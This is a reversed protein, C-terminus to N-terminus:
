VQKVKAALKYSYVVPAINSSGKVIKIKVLINKVQQPVTYEVNNISTKPYNMYQVGPLKFGTAINQNFAFIEPVSINTSSNTTFGYQVPAIEIWKQGNDISIYGQIYGGSEAIENYNSEIDLMVSEVPSDFVYPKSIIDASLEYEQYAISIDRIGIAMRKAPLVEKATKIPVNFTEELLGASDPENSNKIIVSINKSLVNDRKFINPNTLNPVLASKDYIVQTYLEKNVAEPNFRNVGYFPSNDANSAEYNTQWYTHLIEVNQYYPQELVVRCEKLIRESFFFTAANLSYNKLSEKTLNEISLGIFFEEKLIQEINGANDTLHIEKVKVIKSSDFYPTINISNAKQGAAAKITFDFILPQNVDHDAWNILSNQEAAVLTSDNVIYSFELPSRYVNDNPEVKIAEYIYHTVPNSDVLSGVFSSSASSAFSYEYNIGSISNEKKVALNNNGIFGNSPNVTVLNAFWKIPKDKIRLSAFGNQIMPNQNSQIKAWDIYDGNEFSDGNYILDNSPSKSYMQLVKTKSLIRESYKKENEIESTFLNFLSVAKANLFDLQKASVNIDDRISNIFKNVKTSSPVESNEFLELSTRPSNIKDYIESLNKNFDKLVDEKTVYEGAAQKKLMEAISMAIQDYVLTIPSLQAM